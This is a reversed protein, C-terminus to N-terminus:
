QVMSNIISKHFIYFMHEEGRSQLLRYRDFIAGRFHAAIMKLTNEDRRGEDIYRRLLLEWGFWARSFSHRPAEATAKRLEAAAAEIDPPGAYSHPIKGIASSIPILLLLPLAFRIM